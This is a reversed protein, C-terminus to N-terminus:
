AWRARGPDQVFEAVQGEVLVAGIQEELDDALM